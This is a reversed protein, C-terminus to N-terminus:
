EVTVTAVDSSITHTGDATVKVFFFYEGAELDKPIAMTESTEGTIKTATTGDVYAYINLASWGSPKKAYITNKAYSPGEKKTYTYTKSFPTTGEEGQATVTLKISSGFDVGEGITIKEM